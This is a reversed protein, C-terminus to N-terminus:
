DPREGNGSQQRTQPRDPAGCRGMMVNHEGRITYFECRLDDLVQFLRNQNRDIKSLTRLMFFLVMGLLGGILIEMFDVHEYWSPKPEMAALAALCTPVSAALATLILGIILYRKM